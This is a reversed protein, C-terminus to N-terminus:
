RRGLYSSGYINSAHAKSKKKDDSKEKHGFKGAMALKVLARTKIESQEDPTFDNLLNNIEKM